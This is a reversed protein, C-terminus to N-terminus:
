SQSGRSQRQYLHWNWGSIGGYLFSQVWRYPSGIAGAISSPVDGPGAMEFRHTLFWEPGDATWASWPVYILKKDAPLAEAYYGLVLRNRFDHDSGVTIANRATLRAMTAVAEAYHGRGDRLLPAVRYVSGTLPLGLLAAAAVRGSAGYADLRALARAALLWFFPVVVFFYRVDLFRAHYFLLVAAPALFLAVAFFVAEDNKRRVLDWIGWLAICLAVLGAGYRLVGADPGGVILSLTRGLVQPVQFTPGGGYVLKRSDILYDGAIVVLPLRHLAIWERWEIRGERVSRGFTWALIGAYPFLFTLHSLIGLRVSQPSHSGSARRWKAGARRVLAFAALAFFAAPAYGRAESSYVIALFSLAGLLVAFWARSRAGRELSGRETWFLLPLTAIGTLLPLLRYVVFPAHAGALKVTLFLSLTNLPHNNDHHIATIIEWPAAVERAFSLSWIEDLWLEGRAALRHVAALALLGAFLLTERRNLISSRISAEPNM